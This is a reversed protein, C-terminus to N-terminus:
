AYGNPAHFKGHVNTGTFGYEYIFELFLAVVVGCSYLCFFSDLIYEAFDGYHIYGMAM